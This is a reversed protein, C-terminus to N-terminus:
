KELLGDIKTQPMGHRVGSDDCMVRGTSQEQKAVVQQATNGNEQLGTQRVALHTALDKKVEQGVEKLDM